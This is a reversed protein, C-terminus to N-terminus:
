EYVLFISTLSDEEPIKLEALLERLPNPELSSFLLSAALAAL